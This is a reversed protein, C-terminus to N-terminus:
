RNLLEYLRLAENKDAPIRLQIGPEIALNDKTSTNSAPIIWWLNVDGYFKLALIDYRDGVNTIIYTDDETPPVEPYLPNTRYNRGDDNIYVPINQYRHSM